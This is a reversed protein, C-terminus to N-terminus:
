PALPVWRVRCPSFEEEHEVESSRRNHQILGNRACSFDSRRQQTTARASRLTFSGSSGTAIIRTM